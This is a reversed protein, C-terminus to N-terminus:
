VNDSSHDEKGDGRKIIYELLEMKGDMDVPQTAKGMLQDFVYSIMRADGARVKSITKELLLDLKEGTWAENFAKRFPNSVSGKPRGGLKGNQRSADGPM